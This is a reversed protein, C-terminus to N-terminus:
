GLAAARQDATAEAEDKLRELDIGVAKAMMKAHKGIDRPSLGDIFFVRETLSVACGAPHPAIAYLSTSRALAGIPQGGDGLTTIAIADPPAAKDIQMLFPEDPMRQDCLRYLENSRDVAEVRDGRATWRNQPNSPDLLQYVSVPAANIAIEASFEVAGDAPRNMKPAPSGAARRLAAILRNVVM